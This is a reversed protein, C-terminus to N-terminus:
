CSGRFEDSSSTSKRPAELSILSLKSVLLQRPDESLKITVIELDISSRNTSVFTSDDVSISKTKILKDRTLILSSFGSTPGKPVKQMNYAQWVAQVRIVMTIKLISEELSEHPFEANILGESLWFLASGAIPSTLFYALFIIILVSVGM